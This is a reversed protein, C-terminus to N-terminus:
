KRKALIRQGIEVKEMVSDMTGHVLGTDLMNKIDLESVSKLYNLEFLNLQKRINENLLDNYRELLLLQLLYLEKPLDLLERFEWIRHFNINKENLGSIKIFSHVIKRKLNEVEYVNIPKLKDYLGSLYREIIESDLDKQRLESYTNCDLPNYHNFDISHIFIENFRDFENKVKESNTKLSYILGENKHRSIVGKRYKKIEEVKPSMEYVQIDKDKKDYILM